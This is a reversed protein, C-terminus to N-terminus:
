EGTQDVGAHGEGLDELAVRGFLLPLMAARPNLRVLRAQLAVLDSASVLDTKSLLIRDAFGVQEQAAHHSALQQLAHVADVVTLIADLRYHRAIDPDVFFTQAVPSPEALGTTEIIVRDFVLAGAARRAQLQGLLRVLDGRVHCCICGNNMEIIQAHRDQILLDNDISEVAYENEIVAIRHGHEANLIHRLLTTKGSGLFGTIITVPIRTSM